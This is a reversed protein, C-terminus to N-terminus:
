VSRKVRNRVTYIVLVIEVVVNGAAFIVSSSNNITVIYLILLAALIWVFLFDKAIGMVGKSFDTHRSRSRWYLYFSVAILFLASWSISIIWWILLNSYAM